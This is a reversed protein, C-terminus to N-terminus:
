LREFVDAAWGDLESRGVHQWGRADPRESSLYGSTILRSAPIREALNEIEALAINAAALESPPLPEALVDLLRVAVEVGNARANAATAEVALPDLDFAVVPDFGLRAAAIALVGSGCGLDLLGHPEYDLLHALCLRTTPHSGTGFAQGPDIVVALAQSPATEWPPGVWLPGVRVPQHFRKWAEAWGAQVDEARGPGFVQWLREEGGANTYAALEVGGDANSEEFGEPFLEIMVARADEARDERVRISVRRLAGASL